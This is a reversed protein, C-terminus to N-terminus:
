AEVRGVTDEAGAPAPASEVKGGKSAGEDDAEGRFHHRIKEAMDRVIPVIADKDKQNTVLIDPKSLDRAIDENSKDKVTAILAQVHAATASHICEITYREEGGRANRLGVDPDAQQMSCWSETLPWFRGLYQTDLLILVSASAYLNTISNLMLQFEAREAVTRDDGQPMCSYDFWILKIKKGADSEVYKKIANLQM